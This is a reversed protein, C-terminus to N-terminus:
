AALKGLTALADIMRTVSSEPIRWGAKKSVRFGQLQGGRLWRRVTEPTVDLWTAVETVSLLREDLATRERDAM